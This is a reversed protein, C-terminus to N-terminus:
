PHIVVARGKETVVGVLVCSGTTTNVLAPHDPLLTCPSAKSCLVWGSGSALDYMEITTTNGSACIGLVIKAPSVGINTVVLSTNSVRELRLTILPPTARFAPLLGRLYALVMVAIVVSVVIIIVYTVLPSLARRARV